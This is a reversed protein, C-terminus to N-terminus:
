IPLSQLPSMHTNRNNVVILTRDLEDRLHQPLIPMDADGKVAAAVHRQGQLAIGIIV